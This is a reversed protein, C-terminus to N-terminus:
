WAELLLSFAPLLGPWSTKLLEHEIPPKGDGESQKQEGGPAKQVIHQLSWVFQLLCSVALRLAYGEPLTPAEHRDLQELRCDIVLLPSRPCFRCLSSKCM